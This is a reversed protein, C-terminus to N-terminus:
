AARHGATAVTDRRHHGGLVADPRAAPQVALQQGTTNKAFSQKGVVPCCEATRRKGSVEPIYSCTQPHWSGIDTGHHPLVAMHHDSGAINM